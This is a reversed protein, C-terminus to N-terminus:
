SSFALVIVIELGIRETVLQGLVVDSPLHPESQVEAPHTRQGIACVFSAANGVWCRRPPPSLNPSDSNNPSFTNLITYSLERMMSISGNLDLHENILGLKCSQSRDLSYEGDKTIWKPQRSRRTLDGSVSSGSSSVDGAGSSEDNQSNQSWKVRNIRRSIKEKPTATRNMTLQSNVNNGKANPMFSLYPHQSSSEDSLSSDSDETITDTKILNQEHLDPASSELNSAPVQKTDEKADDQCDESALVTMVTVENEIAPFFDAFKWCNLVDYSHFGMRKPSPTPAPQYNAPHIYGSSDDLGPTLNLTNM